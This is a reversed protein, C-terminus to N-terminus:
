FKLTSRLVSLYIEFVERVFVPAMEEPNM